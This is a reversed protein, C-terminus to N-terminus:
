GPSGCYNHCVLISAEDRASSFCLIVQYVNNAICKIEGIHPSEQSNETEETYHLMRSGSVMGDRRSALHTATCSDMM